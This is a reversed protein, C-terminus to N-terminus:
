SNVPAMLSLHLIEGKFIRNKVLIESFYLIGRFDVPAVAGTAGTSVGVRNFNPVGFFIYSSHYTQQM